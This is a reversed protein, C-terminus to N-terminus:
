RRCLYFGGVVPEPVQGDGLKTLVGVVHCSLLLCCLDDLLGKRGAILHVRLFPLIEFGAALFTTWLALRLGCRGRIWGGCRSGLRFCLYDIGSSRFGCLLGCLVAFRGFAKDRVASEM